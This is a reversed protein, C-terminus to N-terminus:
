LICALWLILTGYGFMLAITCATGPHANRSRFWARGLYGGLLALGGLPGPGWFIVPFIIDNFFTHPLLSAKSFFVEFADLVALLIGVIGMVLGTTGAHKGFLTIRDM